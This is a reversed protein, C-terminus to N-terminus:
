AGEAGKVGKCLSLLGSVYGCFDSVVVAKRIDLFFLFGCYWRTM